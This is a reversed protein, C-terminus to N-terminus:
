KRIEDFIKELKEKLLIKQGTRGEAILRNGVRASFSCNIENGNLADITAEFMVTDGVFAPSIHKVNVFTGIGEENPEKMQLVFLRSSWEADRALAFTAYVPHVEGSEFAATDETRVTRGFTQKDGIVFKSLM